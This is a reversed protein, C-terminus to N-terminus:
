NSVYKKTRKLKSLSNRLHYNNYEFHLDRVVILCISVLETNTSKQSIASTISKCAYTYTHYRESASNPYRSDTVSYETMKRNRRVLDYCTQDSFLHILKYNFFCKKLHEIPIHCFTITTAQFIEAIFIYTKCRFM